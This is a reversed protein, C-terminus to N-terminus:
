WSICRVKTRDLLSKVFQLGIGRNAGTVVMVANSDNNRKLANEMNNSPQEKISIDPFIPTGKTGPPVPPQFAKSTTSMRYLQTKLSRTTKLFPSGFYQRKSGICLTFTAFSPACRRGNRVNAIIASGFSM